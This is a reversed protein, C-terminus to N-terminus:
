AWLEDYTIRRLRKWRLEDDTTKSETKVRQTKEKDLGNGNQPVSYKKVCNKKHTTRKLHLVKVEFCSKFSRFRM